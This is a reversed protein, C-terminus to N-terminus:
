ALWKKWAEYFKNIAEREVEIEANIASLGPYNREKKALNLKESIVDLDKMEQQVWTTAAAPMERGNWARVRGKLVELKSSTQQMDDSEKEFSSIVADFSRRKQIAMDIKSKARNFKALIGYVLTSSDKDLDESVDKYISDIAAKAKVLNEYTPSSIIKKIKSLNFLNTMSYGAGTTTQENALSIGAQADNFAGSCLLSLEAFLAARDSTDDEALVTKVAFLIDSASSLKGTASKNAVDLMKLHTDIITEVLENNVKADKPHAEHVLDELEDKSAKKYEIFREEIEEAHEEFGKARLGACLVMINNTLSNTVRLDLKPSATKVVPEDKYWGKQIALRELSRLTPSDSFKGHKFTM